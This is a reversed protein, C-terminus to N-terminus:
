SAELSSFLDPQAPEAAQDPGDPLIASRDLTPSDPRAHHVCCCGLHIQCGDVIRGGRRATYWGRNHIAARERAEAVTDARVFLVSFCGGIDCNIAIWGVKGALTDPRLAAYLARAAAVSEVDFAKDEDCEAFRPHDPCALLVRTTLVTIRERPAGPWSPAPPPDASTM